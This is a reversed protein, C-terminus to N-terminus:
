CVEYLKSINDDDAIHFIPFGWDILMLGTGSPNWPKADNCTQEVLSLGSYRNPCTDDHSFSGPREASRNNILVVGNVKDSAKLTLM